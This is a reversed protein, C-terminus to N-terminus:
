SMGAAHRRAAPLMGLTVAKSLGAPVAFPCRLRAPEVGWSPSVVEFMVMVNGLVDCDDDMWRDSEPGVRGTVLASATWTDCTHRGGCCVQRSSSCVVVVVVTM